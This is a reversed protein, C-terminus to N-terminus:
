GQRAPSAAERIRAPHPRTRAMPCPAGRDSHAVPLPPTEVHSGSRQDPSCLRQPGEATIIVTRGFTNWGPPVQSGCYVPVSRALHLILSRSGPPRASHSLRACSRGTRASTARKRPAGANGRVSHCLNQEEQNGYAEQDCPRRMVDARRRAHWAQGLGRPDLAKTKALCPARRARGVVAAAQREGVAARGDQAPRAHQDQAPLFAARGYPGHCLAQTQGSPPICPVYLMFAPSIPLRRHRGRSKTTPRRAQRCRERQGSHGGPLAGRRLDIM